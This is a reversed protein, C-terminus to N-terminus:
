TLLKPRDLAEIVMTVETPSSLIEVGTREALERAWPQALLSEMLFLPRGHTLTIRAVIRTGSMPGAEVILAAGALGAMVANRKPFTQRSPRTEPWFQSIVAGRQAIERQLSANTRPYCHDLGSGVVAITRGGNALSAEHAITDIGTALGSAVTVEERALRHAISRTLQRGTTSPDRTGVVAVARSDRRALRGAVFLFPPRDALDRLGGPYDEDLVSIVRINRAKLRAVEESARQLALDALLGHEEELLQRASGAEELASAYGSWPQRGTRLVAILAATEVDATM